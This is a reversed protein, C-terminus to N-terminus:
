MGLLTSSATTPTTLLGAGGTLITSARGQRQAQQMEQTHMDAAANGNPDPPPPPAQLDPPAQQLGITQLGKNVVSNPGGM